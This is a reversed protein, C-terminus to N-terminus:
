LGRHPRPDHDSQEARQAARHRQATARASRRTSRPSTGSRGTMYIGGNRGGKYSKHGAIHAIGSYHTDVTGQSGFMRCCIDDYGAGFQTGAFAVLVDKPFTYIVNFHDSCTGADNRGNKGCAGYAKVPAADIIWAAVDLAHIFQETIADGSLVRDLM